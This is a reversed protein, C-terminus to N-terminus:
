RAGRVEANLQEFYALMFTHREQAVARGTETYLMDKIRSLKVIFEHVPTHSDPDDGERLWRDLEVDEPPAWLRQGHAGGYAYARAVGIAGIADLKDADFLVRAEVTEPSPQSRFRHAAIAHIVAEVMSVPQDALINAAQRAAYAAHDIGQADAQSRGIDHLMTAARVIEMRA